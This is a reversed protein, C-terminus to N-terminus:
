RKRASEPASRGDARRRLRVRVPASELDYTKRFYSELYRRYNDTVLGIDNVFVLVTFPRSSIQTCYYFHPRRRGRTPPSHRAVATELARNLESTPVRVGVRDLLALARPLVQSVGLGTKASIRLIVPDAVFGLKRELERAVARDRGSVAVLDWKNLVLVLPRGRDLALRAIRCDQDAVGESADLLLLTLDSREISRLAMLASGREIRQARKGARRLGATDVLVIERGDVRLRVDTADRTTGPEDAVINRPEGLVCNLLSSKGVNPRGIIALRPVGDQVAPEAPPPLREGIAVEVDVVGRRHEASAPILEAFGLEFFEAAAAEARPHDAKNAVVVVQSSVRRLREAVWRDAPLVGERADVVFVIVSADQIVREVQARVAAPIGSEADPDLGGTDVLLVDRGEIRTTEAVRDRTVGPRDEVLARGRRLLRNFLTSKGVNARGVIAVLPLAGGARTEAGRDGQGAGARAM